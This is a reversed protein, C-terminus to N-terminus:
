RRLEEAVGSFAACIRLHWGSIGIHRFDVYQMQEIIEVFV